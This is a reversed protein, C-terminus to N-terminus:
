GNLKERMKEKICNEFVHEIDAHIEEISEELDNINTIVSMSFGDCDIIFDYVRNNIPYQKNRLGTKLKIMYNGKYIDITDITQSVYDKLEGLIQIKFLEDEFYEKWKNNDDIEFEKHEFLNIYRIGTRSIQVNKLNMIEKIVEIFKSKVSEFSEYRDSDFIIYKTSLIIKNKGEADSYSWETIQKDTKSLQDNTVMVSTETLNRQNFIPFAMKIKEAVQTPMNNKLEEVEGVFDLRLIFKIIKNTKYQNGM